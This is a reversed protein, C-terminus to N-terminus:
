RAIRRYVSVHRTSDDTFPAGAGDAHRYVLELGASQAVDDIQRPTFYRVVWPRRRVCVDDEFELFEGSIRQTNQDHRSVSLVVHSPTAFKVTVEDGAGDVGTDRPVVADLAFHGDDDLRDAVSALCRRLGDEDAVNFITNYGVFVLDFRPVPLVERIDGCMDACVPDVHPLRRARLQELMAESADLAVFHDDFSRRLNQVSAILRGTGAGLELITARRRPLLSELAATFDADDLEGYWADYVDAFADGYSAPGYGEIGFDNTVGVTWCTQTCHSAARRAFNPLVDM